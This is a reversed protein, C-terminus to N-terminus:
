QEAEGYEARYEEIRAEGDRIFEDLRHIELAPKVGDVTARILHPVGDINVVDCDDPHGGFGDIRTQSDWDCIAKARKLDEPTPGSM